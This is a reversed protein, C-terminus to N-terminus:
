PRRVGTLQEPVVRMRTNGVEVDYSKTGVSGKVEVEGNSSELTECDGNVTVHIDGVLEGSQDVGDVIVKNSNIRISSGSFTKGNITITTGKSMKLNM